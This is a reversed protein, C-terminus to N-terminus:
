GDILQPFAVQKGRLGILIGAVTVRFVRRESVVEEEIRMLMDSLRKKWHCILVDGPGLKTNERICMPIVLQAKVGIKVEETVGFM